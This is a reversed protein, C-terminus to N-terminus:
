PKMQSPFQSTLEEPLTLHSVRGEQFTESDPNSDFHHSVLYVLVAPTATSNFYGHLVGEPIGVMTDRYGLLLKNLVGKTSSASRMDVLFATLCGFGPVVFWAERQEPHVHLGVAAGPQVVTINVQRVDLEFGASRLELHVSQEFRALERFSGANGPDPFVRELTIIATGEIRPSGTYSERYVSGEGAFGRVRENWSM